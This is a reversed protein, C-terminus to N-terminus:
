IENHIACIFLVITQRIRGYTFPDERETDDPNYDDAAWCDFMKYDDPRFWEFTKQYKKPLSYCLGSSNLQGTEMWEQHLDILKKKSKAM